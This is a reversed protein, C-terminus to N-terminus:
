KGRKKKRKKPPPPPPKSDAIEVNDGRKAEKEEEERQISKHVNHQLHMQLLNTLSFYLLLGVPFILGFFLFLPLMMNMQSTQAGPNRAQAQKFQLVTTGIYILFLPLAPLYFFKDYLFAIPIINGLDIMGPLSEIEPFPAGEFAKITLKAGLFSSHEFGPLLKYYKPMRLVYFLSILVPMQLIMPLCGGFMDVDHERYAAMMRKNMEQPNQKYKEQIEKIVPQIKMMKSQMRAQKRYVGSTALRVLITLLVIDIWYTQTVRHFAGLFMVMIYALAEILAQLFGFLPM